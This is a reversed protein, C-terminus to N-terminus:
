RLAFSQQAKRMLTALRGTSELTANEGHQDVFGMASKEAQEALVTTDWSSLPDGRERDRGKRSYKGGSGEHFDGAVM